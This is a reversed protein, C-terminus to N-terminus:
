GIILYRDCFEDLKDPTFVHIRCRTNGDPWPHNKALVITNAPLVVGEMGPLESVFIKKGRLAPHKSGTCREWVFFIDFDEKRLDAKTQHGKDRRIKRKRPMSADGIDLGKMLRLRFVRESFKGRRLPARITTCLGSRM